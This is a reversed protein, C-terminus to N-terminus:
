ECREREKGQEDVIRCVYRTGTRSDRNAGECSRSVTINLGEHMSALLLVYDTTLHRHDKYHWRVRYM